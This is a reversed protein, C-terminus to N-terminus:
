EAPNMISDTLRVYTTRLAPHDLLIKLHKEITLIDRRIAPGTQVASPLHAQVRNATEMILPKLLDFHLNEKNCFAEALTYLHNTFNSVLVAAIHLKIRDEDTAVEVSDSLSQAFDQLTSLTKENNADIMFPIPPIVKMEKRLSQLPYLVGYQTSMYKLVDKSLSGATHFVPKDGFAVGQLAEQLAGDSLAIIYIDASPDPGLEWDAAQAGLEGALLQAAQIQRSMVQVVEHQQRKILRGLITAVNGAGIIGVKM